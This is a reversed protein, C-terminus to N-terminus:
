NSEKKIPIIGLDLVLSYAYTCTTTDMAVGVAYFHVYYTAKNEDSWTENYMFDEDGSVPEANEEFGTDNQDFFDFSRNKGSLNRYPEFFILDGYDLSNGNTDYWESSAKVYNYTVAEKRTSDYGIYSYVEGGYSSNYGHPIAISSRFDISDSAAYTHPRFYIKRSSGKQPVFVSDSAEVVTGSALRVKKLLPQYKYTGIMKTVAADGNSTNNVNEISSQYSTANSYNNFIKYYVETGLFSGGEINQNSSSENTQFDIYLVAYEETSYTPSNDRITPPEISIITDLGCSMFLACFFFYLFITKITNFIGASKM